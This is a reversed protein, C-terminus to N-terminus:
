TFKPSRTGSKGMVMKAIEELSKGELLHRRDSYDDFMPMGNTPNLGLFKYSYFTGISEGGVIATGNLYDTITYENIIDSKVQNKVFSYNTSLYWSWDKTKIPYGMLSVSFGYNKIDGGNM